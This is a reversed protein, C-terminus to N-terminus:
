KVARTFDASVSTPQGALDAAPSPEVSSALSNPTWHRRPSSRAARGYASGVLTQMIMSAPGRPRHRHAGRRADPRQIVEGLLERIPLSARAHEAPRAGALQLHYSSVARAMPVFGTDRHARLHQRRPRSARFCPLEAIERRWSPSHSSRTACRSCCDKSSFSQDLALSTRAREVVEQVTFDTRGTESLIQVAAAVFRDARSAVATPTNVARGDRALRWRRRQGTGAPGRAM